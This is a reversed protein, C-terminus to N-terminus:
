QFELWLEEPSLKVKQSRTRSQGDQNHNELVMLTLLEQKYMSKNELIYYKNPM